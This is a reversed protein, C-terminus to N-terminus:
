PSRNPETWNKEAMSLVYRRVTPLLVPFISSTPAVCNIWDVSFYLSRGARIRDQSLYTLTPNAPIALRLPRKRAFKASAEM